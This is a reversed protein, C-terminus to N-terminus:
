YGEKYMGSRGVYPQYGGVTSLISGVHTLFDLIHGMYMHVPLESSLFEETLNGRSIHTMLM